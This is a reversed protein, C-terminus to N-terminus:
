AWFHEHRSGILARLAEELDRWVRDLTTTSLDGELDELLGDLTDVGDLTLGAEDLESLLDDLDATIRSLVSRRTAEDKDRHDVLLDLVIQARHKFTEPSVVERKESEEPGEMTSDEMDADDADDFQQLFSDVSKIPPSAPAPPLSARRDESEFDAMLGPEPTFGFSLRAKRMPASVVPSSAVPAAMACLAMAEPQEWGAPMEVPQVIEKGEGGPNVVASRDVAVFATFRSLVGFRLSTEVIKKEREPAPEIVYRDEMKRVQGRAWVTSLAPSDSMTADVMGQWPQGNAEQAGLAMAGEPYGVYRGLVQVPSGAFVDPLREPVLSSPDFRVGAPELRLKTLLPQGIRRHISDMVEDLRDESEVLECAGGGLHALRQLFAANVAQDIGLCFIRLTKLRAGLTHLIQDENGVQGDTILVLVRERGPGAQTLLNVATELPQAMETGGRDNVGALFEIARFRQRDTAHVLNNEGFSPPAEIHDDFALVTFRDQDLLTDVMRGVARRAAVMKWGGMSGSRDLVFVVDRPKASSPGVPPVVTLLFTGERSGPGDPQLTLATRLSADALRLRLIFDRDLRAGPHLTIRRVKNASAEEVAHLSCRADRFPLCSSSVEVSLALQVPNPFGPLLVPPSIRSADPVANTDNSTGEGVNDGSLATGPIYRPAVVLPFRFTAEGDSFPLPGALTLRVTAQEGPLINGVRMTFVGPRDEETIAARHGEEIAQTYERRAQGREKLVGDIIRGGVEMRFGTVAARDPLPFIYTAELPENFANVYTQCVTLQCILGDIRGRVDMAKLPLRGRPTDLAGLGAENDQSYSRQVEDDTMRDIVRTM